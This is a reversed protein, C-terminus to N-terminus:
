ADDPRTHRPWISGAELLLSSPLVTFAGPWTRELYEECQPPKGPKVYLYALRNEGTPAMHLRRAYDEHHALEYHPDKRTTLQGHDALLIVLTDSALSTEIKELCEVIMMETFHLFDAEPQESDPGHRHSLNDVGGYYVWILRRDQLKQNALDRVAIWLDSPHAFSHSQVSPYHMRSLGSGSIGYHLFAHVDVGAQKLGPGITKVPLFTEPDLGATYLMGAGDFATPSHTIMNAILGYEKLFIEYGLIGHEAPSRGTWLTTLAASTTSPVVSTLAGIM